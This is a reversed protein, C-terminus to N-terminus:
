PPRRFREVPLVVEEIGQEHGVPRANGKREEVLRVQLRPEAQLEVQRRRPPRDGVAREGRPLLAPVPGDSAKVSVWM